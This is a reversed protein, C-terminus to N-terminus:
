TQLTCRFVECCSNPALRGTSMKQLSRVHLCLWSPCTCSVVSSPRVTLAVFTVTGGHRLAMQAASLAFLAASAHDPAFTAGLVDGLSGM